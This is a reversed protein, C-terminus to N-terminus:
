RHSHLSPHRILLLLSQLLRSPLSLLSPLSWLSRSPLSPGLRSPLLRPCTWPRKPTSSRTAAPRASQRSSITPIHAGSQSSRRRCQQYLFARNKWWSIALPLWLLFMRHRLRRRLRRSRVSFLVHRRRLCSSIQHSAPRLRPFPMQQLLRSHNNAPFSSPLRQARSKPPSSRAKSHTTAPHQLHTTLRSLQRFVTPVLPFPLVMSAM